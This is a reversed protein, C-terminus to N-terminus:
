LIKLRLLEKNKTYAEIETALAQFEEIPTLYAWTQYFIIKKQIATLKKLATKRERRAQKDSESNRVLEQQYRELLARTDSLADLLFVDTRIIQQVDQIALANTASGESSQKELCSLCVHELSEYRADDSLVRCLDLLMFAAEATDQACDGNFARLVLAYAFLIEIENEGEDNEGGIEELVLERRRASTENRYKRESMLWWPTWLEVLKGLRGDAVEGLFKRREEPTLCDLTLRGEKDLLALEQMRQVLAEEDDEGDALQQQEEQFERVRELLEQISRQQKEDDNGKANSALTMESRVHSEFFQETCGEGHSRYCDVSCYPTNCRPCTYRAEQTTCVRCVRAMSANNVVPGESLVPSASVNSSPKVTTRLTGLRIPVPEM